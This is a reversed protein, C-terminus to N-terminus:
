NSPRWDVVKLQVTRRGQWLNDDLMVILDLYVDSEVESARDAFNFALAEATISGIKVTLKLHKGTSGITKSNLVQIRKLCFLPRSNALGHPELLKLQDVTTLSVEQPDLECDATIVPRLKDDDLKKDAVEILKDYLLELHEKALTLGAAKAHGGYKMLYPECEQLAEVLHFGDVSRASGKALGDSRGALVISPRHYKDMIRGAVLGVVGDNWGDGSILIVKKQDLKKKSVATEAEKLVKDLENQRQVNLENLRQALRQATEVTDAALLEYAISAKEMRGPANLRPGIGFGVTYTSITQPDIAAAIFLQQLGLRRTQRLVMLGFHVLVRNEDVLPVMDCITSIAVLDLYWKVQGSNIKGTKEGLAQVVKYALGCACLEKFPYTDGMQKPNVVIASDPYKDEQVVHHDIVLSAVGLEKAYDLEPKNTIGCDVLVLLKIGDAALTEVTTRSISYGEERTPIYVTKIWGGCRGIGDALLAAAPTGDHDYDGFIAIPEHTAIAEELRTILADMNKILFPDHLTRYDPYLFADRNDIGRNLLLQDILDQKTRPTIRWEKQM